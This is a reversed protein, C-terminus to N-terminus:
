QKVAYDNAIDIETIIYNANNSVTVSSATPSIIYLKQTEEEYNYSFYQQSIATGLSIAKEFM